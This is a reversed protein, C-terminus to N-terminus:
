GALGVVSGCRSPCRDGVGGVRRVRGRAWAPRRAAGIRCSSHGYARFSGLGVRMGAALARDFTGATRTRGRYARATDASMAAKLDEALPAVIDDTRSRKRSRKRKKLRDFEGDTNAFAVMITKERIAHWRLAPASAPTPWLRVLVGSAKYGRATIDAVVREVRLPSVCSV